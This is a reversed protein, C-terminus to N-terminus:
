SDRVLDRGTVHSWDDPGGELVGLDHHGVRELLSAAGAAREGHGCMVVTPADTLGAATQALSGLEVHVAGPLHGATFEADQRVDLVRHREDIEAPGLLRTVATPHGAAAWAETGGALEGVIREVGINVAQWILEALDQDDNRVVVIPTDAPVLWGLWTAFQARLPISV